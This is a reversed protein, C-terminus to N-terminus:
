RRLRTHKPDYLPETSVTAPYCVGFFQVYLATGPQTFEVPLFGYAISKGVSYGFNASTVYGLVRGGDRRDLIPEKGMVVVSSDDLTLCSLKRRVGQKGLRLLADRGVFDGKKLDVAFELGAEYPNFETHIDAGWLRYGKELRLSDFAGGGAAIVRTETLEQGAQWLTDWLQLGYEMPACLEWGLEGVYSVRLALTSVYGVAIHRATFYPFADPSLDDETTRQVLDRARPGWVGVCCYASSIDQLHVSGDDPAHRRLWALDHRGQAGGTVVLFRDAALRTVTLDCAIGGQQDLMSTYTVRGIPRDVQNAAVHNLFALAGPGAVEFKAFPTLDFLAVGDRVAKHEAGIIPSWYRATWGSREPWDPRYPGALLGANAHFWQPREWGVNEFFIAGLQELRPYFPSRRLGRPREMQQWPHIVDYVEAYQQYARARVYPRTYAHPQLRTIDCEHLDITPIGDVIWEAVVKGVGGAHTVWVAEAAWLGRVETEGLIPFGDPTFSFLGNFRDTLGVHRLAPLVDCADELSEAFHELTFPMIAAHDSHAIAEADVLLPEHRYSGFGYCDGYQRFYLDKDQHRLIPHRIEATEGALERLPATRTFPHQVPSLPISIGARKAVAPGWIGAALVVIEAAIRGQPTQVARVRGAQIEFGTVSLNAYFAAGAQEAERALAETIAAATVVGDTPVYSAGYLGDPRLLPLLHRAEDPGLLAAELGWSMSQGVRRKLEAFREPTTAIEMSGVQFFAPGSAPRMQSYLGLSLRALQTMTRSANHQFMLGPAHSTSGWNVFLPGQDLVVVDRWGLRTLHYATSCGVIGAGVIVVRADKRM